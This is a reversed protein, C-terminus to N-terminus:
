GPSYFMKDVVRSLPQGGAPVLLQSLVTWPSDLQRVGLVGLGHTGALRRLDRFIERNMVCFDKMPDAYGCRKIKALSRMDFPALSDYYLQSWIKGEYLPSWMQAKRLHSAMGILPETSDCLGCRDHGRAKGLITSWNESLWQLPKVANRPRQNIPTGRLVAEKLNKRAPPDIWLTM